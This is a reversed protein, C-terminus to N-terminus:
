LQDRSPLNSRIAQQAHKQFARQASSGPPPLVRCATPGPAPHPSGGLSNRPPGPEGWAWGQLSSNSQVNPEEVSPTSQHRHLRPESCVLGERLQSGPGEGAAGPLVM